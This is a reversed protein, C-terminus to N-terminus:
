QPDQKNLNRDRESKQKQAGQTKTSHGQNGGNKTNRNNSM